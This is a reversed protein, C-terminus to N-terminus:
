GVNKLPLSCVPNFKFAPGAYVSIYKGAGPVMCIKRDRSSHLCSQKTGARRCIEAQLLLRSEFGTSSVIQTNEPNYLVYLRSTVDVQM